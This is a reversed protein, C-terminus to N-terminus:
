NDFGNDFILKRELLDSQNLFDDKTDDFIDDFHLDKKKINDM